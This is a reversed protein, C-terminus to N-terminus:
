FNEDGPAPKVFANAGEGKQDWGGGLAKYLRVLIIASEGKAAALENDLLIISRQADLVNQFDVLGEKYLNSALRLNRHSAAVSRELAAVRTRQQSFAVVGDEVERLANLLTKEYNLLAQETRADEARIRNRIRNGSFLLWRLSPGYSWTRSGADFLDATSISEFGFTGSLSFSPYLDATAVGIRATQAALQREARRIDPRRRVLDAPIGIMVPEPPLPIPEERAFEDSLYGPPGGLLVAMANIAGALSTRLLPMEAESSYLIREAQAVDLDTALGHKFRARTLELSQKQSSINRESARLQAQLTRINLYTVAVEAQLTVLIDNVDERSAQYDAAAAEVSRRIRGFLDIEWSADLATKYYTAISGPNITNDSTRQRNLSGGGGIEPLLDGRAIGLTARAERVRAYATKLDLNGAASERILTELLPDDFLTWWRHIAQCDRVMAPDPRAHWSDPVQAQPPLYDPGVACGSLLSLCIFATFLFFAPPSLLCARHLPGM